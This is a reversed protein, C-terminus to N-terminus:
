GKVYRGRSLWSTGEQLDEGRSELVLHFLSATIGLAKNQECRQKKPAYERQEGLLIKDTTKM